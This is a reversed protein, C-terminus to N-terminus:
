AAKAARKTRAPKASRAAKVPWAEVAMRAVERLEEATAGAAAQVALGNSVTMVYRALSAPNSDPPLDGEARAREFREKLAEEKLARHRALEMPVRNDSCTLGGQVLLCGPLNKPDAAYDAVTELFAAAVERATPATLVTELFDRRKADYHDLVALFLGEKSGFAAYLSPSNIGMAATLDTLSSGEYGKRWFVDMARDLAEKTDFSRPRGTRM